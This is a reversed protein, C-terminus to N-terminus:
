EGLRERAHAYLATGPLLRLLPLGAAYMVAAEGAGVELAFVAFSAGLAGEGAGTLALVGGVLLATFVVPPLCALACRPLSRRDGRKGMEATCLGALLTAASGFVIDAAGVPSLLNAALCGIFLGWATYPFFFPLICLAESLRLQVAGYSIPSLLMTLVAYVAAVAACFAMRRVSMNKM